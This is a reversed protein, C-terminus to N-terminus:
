AYVVQSVQQDPLLLVADELPSREKLQLLISTTKVVKSVLFVALFIPSLYFFMMFNNYFMVKRLIKSSDSITQNVRSNNCKKFLEVERNIQAVIRPNAALNRQARVRNQLTMLHLRNIANNLADHVLNAAQKDAESRNLIIEDRIGDRLEFLKNRYHLRVSPLLIREYVYHAAALGLLVYFLVTLM